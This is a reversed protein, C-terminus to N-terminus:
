FFVDKSLRIILIGIVLLFVYRIFVNGKLIAAKSGIYAGLMNFAMMPLAIKFVVAGNLLFGILSAVDAIANVIKSSASAHLFNLGAISVFAFVLLSGTGPGIFGNYFGIVAGIGACVFLFQKGSYKVAHVAGFDKKVFTYVALVVIVCLLLPKFVEPKILEMVFTGSFSAIAAMVGTVLVVSTDVGIKTIYQYAAVSTGAVSAFRNSAIVQVHSFEPFLIMLLPVQILGGGGVVADIFGAFMAGACVLLYILWENMGCFLPSLLLTPITHM